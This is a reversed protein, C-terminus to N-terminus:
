LLDRKSIKIIVISGSGLDKLTLTVHILNSINLVIASNFM